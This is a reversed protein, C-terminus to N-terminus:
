DAKEKSSPSVKPKRSVGPPPTDIPQGIRAKSPSRNGKEKYVDVKGDYDTDEEMWVTIYGPVAPIGPGFKRMGWQDLQRRDIRGDFNRYSEKLVTMRGKLMHNFQDPKGDGNRDKATRSLIGKSDYFDWSDVKGDFNLDNEAATRFGGKFKVFRDPKGDGNMDVEAKVKGYQDYFMTTEKRGDKNEDLFETREQAFAAGAFGLLLLFLLAAPRKM